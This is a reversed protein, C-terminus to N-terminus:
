AGPMGPREVIYSRVLRDHYAQVAAQAAELTEHPNTGQTWGSVLYLTPEDSRDARIRYRDAYWSESGVQRWDLPKVMIAM